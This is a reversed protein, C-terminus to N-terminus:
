TEQCSAAAAIVPKMALSFTTAVRATHKPIVLRMFTSSSATSPPAFRKSIAEAKPVPEFPMISAADARAYRTNLRNVGGHKAAM